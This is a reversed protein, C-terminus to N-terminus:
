NVIRTFKLDREFSAAHFMRWAQSFGKKPSANFVTGLPGSSRQSPRRAGGRDASERLSVNQPSVQERVRAERRGGSCSAIFPLARQLRCPATLFLLFLSFSRTFGSFHPPMEEGRLSREM